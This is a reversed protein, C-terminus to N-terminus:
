FFLILIIFYFIYLHFEEKKYKFVKFFLSYSNVIKNELERTLDKKFISLLETLNFEHDKMKLLILKIIDLRKFKICELLLLYVYETNKMLDEDNLLIKVAETNDNKIMIVPNQQIYKKLEENLKSYLLSVFKYNKKMLGLKFCHEIICLDNEKNHELIIDLVKFDPIPSFYSFSIFLSDVGENGIQKKCFDIVINFLNIDCYLLVSYFFRSIDEKLQNECASILLSTTHYRNFNIGFMIPSMINEGDNKSKYIDAGKYILYLLGRLNNSSASQHLPCLYNFSYSEINMDKEEILWNLIEHKYFCSACFLSVSIDVGYQESIKLIEFCNSYTALYPICVCHNTLQNIEAENLMNIFYKFVKVSSCFASYEILTMNKEVVHSHYFINYNINTDYSITTQKMMDILKDLDDNAIAEEISGPFYGNECLFSHLKWNDKRFERLIEPTFFWTEYDTFTELTNYEAFPEIQDVFKYNLIDDYTDNFDDHKKNRNMMDKFGYWDFDQKCKQKYFNFFVDKNEIEKEETKEEKEETKEKEETENKLFGKRQLQYITELYFENDYKEFLPMFWVIFPLIFQSKYCMTRKIEIIRDLFDKEEYFGEKYLHYLLIHPTSPFSILFFIRELIEFKLNNLIEVKESSLLLRGVEATIKSLQKVHLSNYREITYICYSYDLPTIEKNILKESIILADSKANELTTYVLIDQLEMVKLSKELLTRDFQDFEHLNSLNEM